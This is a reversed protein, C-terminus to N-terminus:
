LRMLDAAWSTERIAVNEPRPQSQVVDDYVTVVTGGTEDKTPEDLKFSPATDGLLGTESAATDVWRRLLRLELTGVRIRDGDRLPVDHHEVRKGNVYTGNTSNLDRVFIRGGIQVFEAHIMSVQMSPLTLNLGPRRGIRFRAADLPVTQAPEGPFLAGVLQWCIPLGQQPKPHSSQAVTM